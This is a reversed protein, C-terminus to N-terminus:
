ADVLMALGLKQELKVLIVLM